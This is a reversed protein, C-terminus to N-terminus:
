PIRSSADEMRVLRLQNRSTTRLDCTLRLEKTQPTAHITSFVGWRLILHICGLQRSLVCNHMYLSPIESYKTPQTGGGCLM